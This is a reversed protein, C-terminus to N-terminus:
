ETRKPLYWTKREKRRTKVEIISGKRSDTSLTGGRKIIPNGRRPTYSSLTGSAKKRRSTLREKTVRKKKVGLVDRKERQSARGRTNRTALSRRTLNTDV